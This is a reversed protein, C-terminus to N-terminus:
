VKIAAIVTTLFCNNNIVQFNSLFNGNVNFLKESLFLEAEKTFM